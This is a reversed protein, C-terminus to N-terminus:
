RETRSCQAPSGTPQAAPPDCSGPLRSSYPRTSQRPCSRGPPAPCATSLHVAPGAVPASLSESVPPVPVREPLLAAPQQTPLSITGPVSPRSSDPVDDIVTSTLLRLVRVMTRISAFNLGSPTFRTLPARDSCRCLRITSSELCECKRCRIAPETNSVVANKRWATAYPEPAVFYSVLM